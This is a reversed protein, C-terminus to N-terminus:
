HYYGGSQSASASSSSGGSQMVAEGKASVLFWIGGIGEGNTDGAASDGSYIYVPHGAYTVQTTGDDRMTTGLLSADVGDGGTPQGTVTLAPWTPACGENCTSKSTTDNMFMYLSRGQADTLISGFGGTSALQVTVGADSSSSSSSSSTTGGGAPSSTSSNSCAALAISFLAAATLFTSRRM